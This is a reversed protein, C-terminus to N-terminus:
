FQGVKRGINDAILVKEYLKAFNKAGIESGIVVLLNVVFFIKSYALSIVSCLNPITWQCKLCSTERKYYLYFLIFWKLLLSKSFGKVAAKCFLKKLKSSLIKLCISSIAIPKGNPELKAM